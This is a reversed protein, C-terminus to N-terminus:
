NIMIEEQPYRYNAHAVRRFVAVLITFMTVRGIFMTGILVMKSGASLDPTIGMSLGVTSYASFVEFVIATHDKESDFIRILFISIGIVALSLFIVAFARRISADSIQRRYVEIRKKGQIMQTINLVALAFTTTKIGGGTSMPSAGIWMLLVTFMITGLQAQDFDISNFGATRPTTGNFFSVVMKGWMSHESLSHNYEFISFFVTGIVILFGTTILVLRTNINIIWPRHVFPLKKKISSVSNVIYYRFYELFNFVIPFGLGGFIFLWALIIQLSYNFRFGSTMLGDTLTSFGANCFASVSHFVSFFLKSTLGMVEWDNISSFILLAGLLEFGLTYLLITKIMSYVQTLRGSNTIERILLQNKYSTEGRFFFSFFSTFTMIGLGGLQILLLLLGQGFPTFDKATDLVILGTVCVASTATFFADLLSISEYTATPLKLAFAGLVILVFFSGVFLQAPNFDLFARHINSTFIEGMLGFLLTVFVWIWAGESTIFSASVQGPLIIFYLISLMSLMLLVDFPWIKRPPRKERMAYRFVLAGVNLIFTSIYLQYVSALVHYEPHKFGIDYILWSLSVLSFIVTLWRVVQYIQRVRSRLM